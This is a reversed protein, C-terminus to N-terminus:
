PKGANSSDASTAPAPLSSDVVSSHNLTIVWRDGQRGLILTTHGRFEVVKNDLLAAYIFQYTAWASNGSVKIYTNSRDMHAGTVQARQTLYAKRYNDWGIVPQEWMGSVVFVDEAYYKHLSDIDGIQWYGLMEGIARDVADSDSAPPLLIANASSDVKASDKKKDKSKQAAGPAALAVCALAVLAVVRIRTASKTAPSKM